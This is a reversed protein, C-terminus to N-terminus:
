SGKHHQMGVLKCFKATGYPVAVCPLHAQKVSTHTSMYEICCQSNPALHAACHTCSVHLDHRSVHLAHKSWAALALVCCLLSYTAVGHITIARAYIEGVSSLLLICGDVTRSRGEELSKLLLTLVCCHHRVGHGSSESFHCCVSGQAVGLHMRLLLRHARALVDAVACAAFLVVLTTLASRQGQWMAPGNILWQMEINRILPQWWKNVVTVVAVHQLGVRHQPLVM